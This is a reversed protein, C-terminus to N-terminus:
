HLSKGVKDVNVSVIYKLQEQLHSIECMNCVLLEGQSDVPGKESMLAARPSKSQVISRWKKPERCPFPGDSPSLATTFLWAVLATFAECVMM